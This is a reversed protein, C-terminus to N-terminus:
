DITIRPTPSKGLVSVSNGGGTDYVIRTRKVISIEFPEPNRGLRGVKDSLNL